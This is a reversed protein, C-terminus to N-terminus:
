YNYKRKKKKKRKNNNNNNDPNVINIKNLLPKFKNTYNITINQKSRNTFSSISIGEKIHRMNKKNVINNLCATSKNM